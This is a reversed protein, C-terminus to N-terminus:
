SRAVEQAAAVLTRARHRAWGEASLVDEVTLSNGAPGPAHEALVAAVTDVIAPFALRGDLFAAM